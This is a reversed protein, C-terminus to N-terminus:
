SCRSRAAAGPRNDHIVPQGLAREIGEDVMRMFLDSTTGPASPDIMRLPKSPFTQGWSAPAGLVFAIAIMAFGILRRKLTEM